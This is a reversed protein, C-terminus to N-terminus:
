LEEECARYDKEDIVWVILLIVITDVCRNHEPVDVGLVECKGIDKVSTPSGGPVRSCLM